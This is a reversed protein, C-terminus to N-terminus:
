GELSTLRAQIQALVSTFSALVDEKDIGLIPPVEQPQSSSDALKTKSRM